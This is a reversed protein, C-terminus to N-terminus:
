RRGTRRLIRFRREGSKRADGTAGTIRVACGSWLRVITAITASTAEHAAGLASADGVRVTVSQLESACSWASTVCAFESLAPSVMSKTVNTM